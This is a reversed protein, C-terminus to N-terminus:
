DTLGHSYRWQKVGVGSFPKDPHHPLLDDLIHAVHEDYWRGTQKHIYKHIAKRRRTYDPRKRPGLEKTLEKVLQSLQLLTNFARSVKPSHSEGQCAPLWSTGFDPELLDGSSIEAREALLRVLLSRRLRDVAGALYKASCVIQKLQAKSSIPHLVTKWTDLPHLSLEYEKPKRDHSQPRLNLLNLANNQKPEGMNASPASPKSSVFGGTIQLGPRKRPPATQPQIKVPSTTLWIFLGELTQRDCGMKCLKDFAARGKRSLRESLWDNSESM